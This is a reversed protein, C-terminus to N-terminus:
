SSAAGPVPSSSLRRPQARDGTELYDGETNVDWVDNREGLVNRAALMGTLMSHDQNNYRHQGNRGVQHLNTLTGLYGRVAALAEQYGRDYLPYARRMRVVAGDVVERRSAIRLQELERAGLDLLADDSSGWLDDNEWVFYELGLCSRGPEPVMEPSWNKFNQIRGMRVEPSHVYIWNDPFLTEREIVLAVTLFDRYRLRRAAVQVEASPLPDLFPIVDHLAMSSIVDSAPLEERRGEVDEVEVHTVHRGDHRIKVVDRGTLVESGRERVVDRCREWMQGPGLRPYEFRDIMSRVAGRRARPLLARWITQAVTLNQIRQAGWEAGIDSCPIGWVKETYTKFFTEYLKRGFRNTVWQEFSEELPSPFARAQLYSALIQATEGLGLSRCVEMAQLPYHLFRGRYFIRSLRPRTLLQDGLLEHWVQEVEPIKTYFRHGGIDFRYGRHCVTRSLGGVVPDKELVLSRAGHKSLEYAATLGAPGGGIILAPASV